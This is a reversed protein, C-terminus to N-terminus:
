FQALVENVLKQITDSLNKKDEETLRKVAWGHWVPQHSSVDYIDIAIKGEEYQTVKISDSMMMDYQRGSHYRGGWMFSGSYTAPYSHVKIKERNGVSYSITFDADEPVSILQYGKSIFAGEIASDIRAKMVPNFDVTPTLIKDDNLWAFTKYNSTDIQSNIDFNVTAKNNACASLFIVLCSITLLKLYNM